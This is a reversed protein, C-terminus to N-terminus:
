DQEFLIPSLASSFSRMRDINSVKKHGILNSEFIDHYSIAGRSLHHSVEQRLRQLSFHKVVVLVHNQSDNTHWRNFSKVQCGVFRNSGLEIAADRM